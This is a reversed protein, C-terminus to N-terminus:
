AFSRIRQGQINRDPGQKGTPVKLDIGSKSAQGEGLAGTTGSRNEQPGGSLHNAETEHDSPWAGRKEGLTNEPRPQDEEKRSREDTQSRSEARWDRLQHREFCGCRTGIECDGDRSRAANESHGFYGGQTRDTAELNYMSLNRSTRRQKRKHRYTLLDM